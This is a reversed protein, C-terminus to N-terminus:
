LASCGRFVQDLLFSLIDFIPREMAEAAGAYSRISLGMPDGIEYESDGSEWFGERQIEAATRAMCELRARLDGPEGTEDVELPVRRVAEGLKLLPFVVPFSPVEDPRPGAADQKATVARVREAQRAEM